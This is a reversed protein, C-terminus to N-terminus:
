LRQLHQGRFTAAACLQNQCDPVGRTTGSKTAHYATNQASDALLSTLYFVTTSCRKVLSHPGRHFCLDMYQKKQCKRTKPGRCVSYRPGAHCRASRPLSSTCGLGHRELVFEPYDAALYPRPHHIVNPGTRVARIPGADCRRCRPTFAIRM